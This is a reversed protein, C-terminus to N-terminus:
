GRDRHPRARPGRGVGLHGRREHHARHLRLRRQRRGPQGHAALRRRQHGRRRRARDRRPGPRHLAPARRRQLRRAPGARGRGLRRRRRPQHRRGRRHPHRRSPLTLVPKVIGQLQEVGVRETWRRVSAVQPLPEQEGEVVPVVDLQQDGFGTGDRTVVDVGVLVRDVEASAPATVTFSRTSRRRRRRGRRPRAAPPRDLGAAPRPRGARRAPERRAPATLSSTARDTSGGPVVEFPTPPRRRPRHGAPARRREAARRGRPDDLLGRRRLDPGRPRVARPLRDPARLRLGITAPDASVDPFGAWGQSAYARQAERELQAWTEGSRSGRGAWVGYVDDTPDAPTYSTPCNPGASGAAGQVATTLLKKAAWPRLGERTIQDPYRAPDAAAEYAEIALLAAEQHGGHNGPSPAPNMTM